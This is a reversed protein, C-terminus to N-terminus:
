GLRIRLQRLQLLQRRIYLKRLYLLIDDKPQLLACLHQLLNVFLHTAYLM